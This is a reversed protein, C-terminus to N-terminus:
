ESRGAFEDPLESLYITPEDLPLIVGPESSLYAGKLGDLAMKILRIEPNLTITSNSITIIDGTVQKTVAFMPDDTKYIREVEIHNSQHNYVVNIGIKGSLIIRRVTQTEDNTFSRNTLSFSARESDDMKIPHFNHTFVTYTDEYGMQIIAWPHAIFEQLSEDSQDPVRSWSFSIMFTSEDLRKLLEDNFVSQLESYWLKQATLRNYETLVEDFTANSLYEAVVGIFGSENDTYKEAASIYSEIASSLSYVM